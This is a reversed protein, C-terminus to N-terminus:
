RLAAAILRLAERPQLRVLHVSLRLVRLGMAALVRDRRKDAGRRRAHQAGDVEVVLRAEPAFLDVIYGHLVVQRRFRVGVQSGRLAAWLLQEPESPAVRMRHAHAALQQQKRLRGVPNSM